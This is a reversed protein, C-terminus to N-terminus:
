YQRDEAKNDTENENIRVPPGIYQLCNGCVPIGWWMPTKLIEVTGMPCLVCKVITTPWEM